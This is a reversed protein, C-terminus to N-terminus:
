NCRLMWIRNKTSEFRELEGEFLKTVDYIVPLSCGSTYSRVGGNVVRVTGLRLSVLCVGSGTALPLLPLLSVLLFFRLLPFVLFVFIGRTAVSGLMRFLAHWRERRFLLALPPQLISDANRVDDDVGSAFVDVDEVFYTHM